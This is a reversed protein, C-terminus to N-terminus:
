LCLGAARYKALVDFANAQTFGNKPDQPDQMGNSFEIRYYTYGNTHKFNVIRCAPTDKTPSCSVTASQSPTLQISEGPMLIIRQDAFASISVLTLVGLLLKKM